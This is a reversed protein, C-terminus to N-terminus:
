FLKKLIKMISVEENTLVIKILVKGVTADGNEVLEIVANLSLDKFKEVAQVRGLTALRGSMSGFQKSRNFGLSGVSGALGSTDNGLNYGNIEPSYSAISDRLPQVIIIM